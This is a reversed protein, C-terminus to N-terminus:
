KNDEAGGEPKKEEIKGSGAKKDKKDKGSDGGGCGMIFPAAMMALSLAFLTRRSM